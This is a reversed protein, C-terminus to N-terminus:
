RENTAGSISLDRHVDTGEVPTGGRIFPFQRFDVYQTWSEDCVFRSLEQVQNKMKETLREDSFMAAATKWM